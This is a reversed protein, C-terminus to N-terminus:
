VLAISICFALLALGQLVARLTIISDWRVQLARADDPVENREVAAIFVKNIPLSIRNFLVLWVLLLTLGAAAAIGAGIHGAILAVVTTAAAAVVSGIGAIPMRQDGYRHARGVVQVLGRDDIEAYTPRMVLAGLVDTGFIVATFLVAAIALIASM